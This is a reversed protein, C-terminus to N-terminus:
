QEQYKYVSVNAYRIVYDNHKYGKSLVDKVCNDLEKHMTPVVMIADHLQEQFPEGDEPNIVTINNCDLVNKLSNYVLMVGKYDLEYNIMREFDDFFPLMEEIIKNQGETFGNFYENDTRKKLNQYDALARLYKDKYDKLQMQLAELVTVEVKNPQEEACDPEGLMEEKTNKNTGFIDFGFLDKSAESMKKIDEESVKNDIEERLKDAFEGQIPNRNNNMGIM